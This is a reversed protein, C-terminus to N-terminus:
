RSTARRRGQPRLHRHRHRSRPVRALGVQLGQAAPRRARRRAPGRLPARRDARAPRDRRHRHGRREPRRARRRGVGPDARRHPRGRGLVGDLAHAGDARARRQQRQPGHRPATYPPARARGRRVGYRARGRGADPAAGQGARPEGSPSRGTARGTCRSPAIASRTWCGGCRVTRAGRPDVAGARQGARRRAAAARKAPATLGDELQIGRRLRELEFNSPLGRVTAQYTKVVGSSPHSLLHALDGDNTLLLLGTTEADLRGVPYVRVSSKVLDAVTQRGQPDSMTTVVGAPKHLVLYAHREATGVARGDVAVRQGPEVRRGLDDVVEGDVTVRGGAILADAARRSAVGAQALYRNLRLGTVRPLRRPAAPAPSRVGPRADPTARRQRDPM